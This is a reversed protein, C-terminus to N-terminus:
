LERPNYTSEDPLYTVKAGYHPLEQVIKDIRVRTKGEVLLAFEGTDRGQLRSISGVVGYGFLEGMSGKQKNKALNSSSDDLLRQGTQGLLPSAVPVCAIPVHDIRQDPSSSSAQSFVTSLLAPIDPRDASVAIRQIIGPLLVSGKPQPIVPLVVSQQPSRPAMVQAATPPAARPEVAGSGFVARVPSYKARGFVHIRYRIHKSPFKQIPLWIPSVSLERFNPRTYIIPATTRNPNFTVITPLQM